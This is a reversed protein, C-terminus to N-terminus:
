GPSALGTCGEIGITAAPQYALVGYDMMELESHQVVVHFGPFASSQRVGSVALGQYSQLIKM